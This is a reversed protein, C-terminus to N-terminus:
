KLNISFIDRDNLFNLKERTQLMKTKNLTAIFVGDNENAEVISNGLEDLIVSHGVYEHKNGDLGIRNVGVVFSM